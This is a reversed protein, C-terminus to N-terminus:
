VNHIQLKIDLITKFKKPSSITLTKGTLTKIYLREPYGKSDVTHVYWPSNDLLFFHVSRSADKLRSIRRDGVMLRVCIVDKSLTEEMLSWFRKMTVMDGGEESPLSISHLQKSPLEMVSVEATPKAAM